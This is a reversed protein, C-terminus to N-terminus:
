KPFFSVHMIGYTFAGVVASTYKLIVYTDPINGDYVKGANFIMSKM